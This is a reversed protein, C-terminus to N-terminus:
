VSVKVTARGMVVVGRPLIVNQYGHDTLVRQVTEAQFVGYPRRHKGARVFKSGWKAVVMGDRVTKALHLKAM